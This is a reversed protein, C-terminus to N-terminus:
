TLGDTGYRRRLNSLDAGCNLTKGDFRLYEDERVDDCLTVRGTDPEIVLLDADFLRHLDVRLIAGNSSRDSGGESRRDLHAAELLPAIECGSLACRLGDRLAVGRRFAAQEPRIERLAWKEIREDELGDKTEFPEMVDAIPSAPEGGSAREGVPDRTISKAATKVDRAMLATFVMPATEEYVIEDGAKPGYLEIFRRAMTRNRFITSKDSAIDTLFAEGGVHITVERGIGEERRPAGFVKLARLHDRLEGTPLHSNKLKTTGPKLEVNGQTITARFFRNM